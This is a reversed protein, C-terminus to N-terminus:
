ETLIKLRWHTQLTVPNNPLETNKNTSNATLRTIGKVVVIATIVTGLYGLLSLM